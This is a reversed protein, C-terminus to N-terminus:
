ITICSTANNDCPLTHQKAFQAFWKGSEKIIREQTEFDVYVIGFRSKYGFGWEFNDYLSWIFYGKVCVGMQMASTMASIHRKLYDCRPMDEVTHELSVCDNYSAGNETIYINSIQYEEKMRLLMEEFGAETIPWNRDTVTCNKPNEIKFGLPWVTADSKVFFDNYYNLGVFDIPQSILEMDGLTFEPLLVGKGLYFKVMDQPYSGRMIPEVFWRNIYGDAINAAALDESNQSFPKRGMLNLAIGISGPIQNERFYRVCKGHAVNLHHAVKIATSFDRLGPAQRGEYNGLFAVCYPENITIWQTVQGKFANFIVSAFHLFYDITKRNAWGGEDQLSQPLDWHYLTIFPEIGQAILEDVLAIYFDLGKQNVGEKGDPIVRSWSISFRYSNIGLQKMMAVDEKYRHYHECAFEGTDGNQVNGPISCFRDWISEARGDECVAGEIQYAATATGWRFDSPYCFEAM